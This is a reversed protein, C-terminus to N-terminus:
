TLYTEPLMCHYVNGRMHLGHWHISVSEELRNLVEVVLTDGSRVEVTPGPFQGAYQNSVYVV